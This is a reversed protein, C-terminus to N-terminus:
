GTVVGGRKFTQLLLTSHVSEVRGEWPGTTLFGRLEATDHATVDVVVPYEGMVMAAYRVLPSRALTTGIHEAHQPACRIWLLAEVPLGLLAPGVVARIRVFGRQILQDIRRRATAQSFGALSAITEFPTRGDAVLADIIARDVDDVQLGTRTQEPPVDPLELAAVEDPTLVGARWEAVTRFYQLVPTLRHTIVGDLEMVLLSPLADFESTVEAIVEASEALAYVFVTDPRAALARAVSQVADPRCQVRLLHTPALATLGVVQVTRDELLAAGRRAVTRVPEDLVEAIRRWSARGNVQLAETIRLALPDLM